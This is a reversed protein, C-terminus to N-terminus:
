ATRGNKTRMNEKTQSERRAERIVVGTTWEKTQNTTKTRRRREDKQRESLGDNEIEVLKRKHEEDARSLEPDGGMSRM